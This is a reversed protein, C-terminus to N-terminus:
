RSSLSCDRFKEAYVTIQDPKSELVRQYNSVFERWLKIRIESDRIAKENDTKM